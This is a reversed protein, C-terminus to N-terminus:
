EGSGLALQKSKLAQFMTMGSSQDIAYPMFVEAVEAQGAEVLAMQAEVWDKVIRWAIRECQEHDRAITVRNVKRLAREVGGVDCPLRFHLISQQLKLGFEVAMPKGDRYDISVHTAGKSGLVSQIEAVTKAAPVKTTYNLIPM